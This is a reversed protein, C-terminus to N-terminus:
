SSTTTSESTNRGVRNTRGFRFLIYIAGIPLMVGNIGVPAICAVLIRWARTWIRNQTVVRDASHWAVVIAAVFVASSLFTWSWLAVRIDVFM